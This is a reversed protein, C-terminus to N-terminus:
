GVQKAVVQLLMLDLFFYCQYDTDYVLLSNVPNLIAKRTISDMRPILIGRSADRIEMIVSSPINPPNPVNIGVQNNQANVTQSFSFLLTSVLFAQLFLTINKSYLKM